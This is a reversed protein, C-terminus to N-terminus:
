QVLGMPVEEIGFRIGTIVGAHQVEWAITSADPIQALWADNVSRDPVFFFPLSAGKASQILALFTAKAAETECQGEAMRHRTGTDYLLRHGYFTRGPGRKPWTSAFTAGGGVTTIWPVARLTTLLAIEGISVNASAGTITLTWVTATRNADSRMDRWANVCQGDATRAPITIAQSYSATNTLTVTAGVLNHNAILIAELTTSGALTLTFTTATTTAKAPTGPDLDKANSAPYASNANTQSFTAGTSANDSPYSLLPAGM